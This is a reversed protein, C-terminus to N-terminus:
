VQMHVEEQIDEGVESPSELPPGRQLEANLQQVRTDLVDTKQQLKQVQTAEALAKNMNQKSTTLVVWGVQVSM